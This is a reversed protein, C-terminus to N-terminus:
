INSRRSALLWPSALGPTVVLDANVPAFTLAM